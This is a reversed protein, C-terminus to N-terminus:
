SFNHRHTIFHPHPTEISEMMELAHFGRQSPHGNFTIVLKDSFALARPHELSADQLSDTKYMLESNEWVDEHFYPLVDELYIIEPHNEMFSKFQSISQIHGYELGADVNLAMM